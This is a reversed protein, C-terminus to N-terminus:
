SLPMSAMIGEGDSFQISFWLSQGSTVNDLKPILFSVTFNGVGSSPLSLNPYNLGVIKISLSSDKTINLSNVTVRHQYPNSFSFACTANESSGSPLNCSASNLTVETLSMSHLGPVMVLFLSFGVAALVLVVSLSRAVTSLGQKTLRLSRVRANQKGEM